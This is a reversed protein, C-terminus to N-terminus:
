GSYVVDRHYELFSVQARSFGGVSQAADIHWRDLVSPNLENSVLIRGTDSFSIFGRDFLHDVHPSLLLGNAGDLKESNNSKAWPKMHSARLHKVNTVGTVRCAREIMRVNAKFIGQGRRSKILQIGDLDGELSKSRIELEIADDTEQDIVRALQQELISVNENSLMILLDSLAASIETLYLNQLGDGNARLPAYKPALLPGIETMFRKPAIPNTVPSFDVEVFWGVDAWNSGATRFNPKPATVAPRQVVGIAKILTDCFSFVLDGPSVQEMTDYYYNRSGSSTTKPSWLFGGPVEFRYTQNQNVWWHRM